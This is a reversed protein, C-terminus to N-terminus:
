FVKFPVTTRITKLGFTNFFENQENQVSVFNCKSYNSFEKEVEEKIMISGLGFYPQEGYNWKGNKIRPEGTNGSEDIFMKYNM